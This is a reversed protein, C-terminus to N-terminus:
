NLQAFCMTNLLQETPTVDDGQPAVGCFGLVCRAEACSLRVSITRHVLSLGEKWDCKM